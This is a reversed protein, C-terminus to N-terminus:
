PARSSITHADARTPEFGVGDTFTLSSVPPPEFKNSGSAAAASNALACATLHNSPCCQDSPLRVHGRHSQVSPAYRTLLPLRPCSTSRRAPIPLTDIAVSFRVSRAMSFRVSQPGRRPPLAAVAAPRAKLGYRASM